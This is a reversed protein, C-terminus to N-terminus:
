PTAPNTAEAEHEALEISGDPYKWFLQKGDAFMVPLGAAFAEACAKDSARQLAALLEEDTIDRPADTHPQM